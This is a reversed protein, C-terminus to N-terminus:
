QEFVEEIIQQCRETRLQEARLIAGLDSVAESLADNVVLYQYAAAQEFERRYQQMRISITEETETGRRRLRTELTSLSPPLIFVLVADPYNRKVQLAGQVDIELLVSIGRELRELVPTKPTGYSNDCFTAWELFEGAAVMADFEEQTKFHYTVGDTDIERMPRTTASVSFFVEPHAQLFSQCVTGKGVGSPGSVVLLAGKNKM